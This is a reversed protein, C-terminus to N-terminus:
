RRVRRARDKLAEAIAAEEEPSLNHRSAGGAIAKAYTRSESRGNISTVVMGNGHDDLLAASFSLRGGMDEFADYRVMGLNRASRGLRSFLEEQRRAVEELDAELSATREVHHAVADVLTRGAYSGQLVALSRRASSIRRHASLALLVGVAATAAIAALALDIEKVPVHTTPPRRARM